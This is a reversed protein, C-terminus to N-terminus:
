DLEDLIPLLDTLRTITYDPEIGELPHDVHPPKMLVNPMGVNQAGLIDNQPRDGIFIAEEPLRDLLGLMRWYIAPHPKMFRTDGSTIRADFYDLLGYERLEIDRFWMPQFSNTILGIQYGRAKIEDLVAHTDDFPRVGPRPSWDYARLVADMDIRELDLEMEEFGLWLADILRAGAWTQLADEWVQRVKHYFVTVFEEEDPPNHGTQCLYRHINQYKPTLFERWGLTSKSWDILTDDFDFLVAKIQKDNRM